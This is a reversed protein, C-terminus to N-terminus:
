AVSQPLYTEGNGTHGTYALRRPPNLRDVQIHVTAPTGRSNSEMIVKDFPLKSELRLWDFLDQVAVYQADIDVAARGWEFLHFSDPKGGVRTNHGPDRYGDHVRVPGFKTRIPELIEQCIYRANEVLQADCGVVGLEADTFHETLNM